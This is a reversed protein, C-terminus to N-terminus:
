LLKELIIYKDKNNKFTYVEEQTYDIFLYSINNYINNNTQKLYEICISLFFINALFGVIEVLICELM